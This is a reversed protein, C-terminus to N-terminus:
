EETSCDLEAKRQQENTSKSWVEWGEMLFDGVPIVGGGALNGASKIAYKVVPGVFSQIFAFVTM